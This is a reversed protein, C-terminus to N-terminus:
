RVLSIAYERSLRNSSVEIGSALVPAGNAPDLDLFVGPGGNASITNRVIHV